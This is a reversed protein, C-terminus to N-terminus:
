KINSQKKVDPSLTFILLIRFIIIRGNKFKEKSFVTFGPLNSCSATDLFDEFFGYKEFVLFMKSSKLSGFSLASM